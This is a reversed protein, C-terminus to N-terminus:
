SYRKRPAESAEHKHSDGHLCGQAERFGREVKGEGWGRQGLSPRWTTSQALLEEDDEVEFM